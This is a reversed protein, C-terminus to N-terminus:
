DIWCRADLGHVCLAGHSRAYVPVTCQVFVNVFVKAWLLFVDLCMLTDCALGLDVLAMGGTGSGGGGSCVCVCCTQSWM